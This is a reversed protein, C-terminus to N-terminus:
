RGSKVVLSIKRSTFRRQENQKQKKKNKISNPISPVQLQCFMPQLQQLHFRSRECGTNITAIKKQSIILLLIILLNGPERFSICISKWPGM